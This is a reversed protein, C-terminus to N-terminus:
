ADTVTTIQSADAASAWNHPQVLWGTGDGYVVFSGGIKTSSTAFGVSDATLNNLAVINDATGGAVTMNQDAVSHFGYRLGKKPTAPLTFVVAGAAGRTTFLINNDAETVTYDATKAVIDRWGGINTGDWQDSFIFRRYLQARILHEYTTGSIGMATTGPVILRDAKVTGGVMMYALWRDQDAGLRQTNVSLDLVGFIFQSGDTGTPNWEKIKNTATVKGLLLGSRLITTYSTNGTDRSAGSLIMGTWQQLARDGFWFTNEWTLREGTQGPIIYAGDYSFNM